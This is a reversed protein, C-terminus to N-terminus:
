ISPSFVVTESQPNTNLVAVDYSGSTPPQFVIVTQVIGKLEQPICSSSPFSSGPNSTTPYSNVWSDFLPPQLVCFDAGGGAVNVTLQFTENNFVGPLLLGFYGPHTQNGGSVTRTVPLKLTGHPPPPHPLYPVSAFVIGISLVVTISAIILTRRRTFRRQM